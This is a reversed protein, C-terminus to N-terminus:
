GTCKHYDSGVTKCITNDIDFVYVMKSLGITLTKQFGAVSEDTKPHRTMSEIIKTSCTVIDCGNHWADSVDGQSRISGAM